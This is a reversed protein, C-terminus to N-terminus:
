NRTDRQAMAANIANRGAGMPDDPASGYRSNPNPGIALAKGWHIMPNSPEFCLAANFSAIAEPFYYSYTLRLGQDFYAQTTEMATGIGRRYSGSDSLIPALEDACAAMDQLAAQSIAPAPARVPTTEAQEPQDSGCAALGLLAIAALLRPYDKTSSRRIPKSQKVPTYDENNNTM